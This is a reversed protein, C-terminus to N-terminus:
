YRWTARAPLTGAWSCCGCGRGAASFSRTWRRPPACRMPRPGPAAHARRRRPRPVAPGRACTPGHLPWTWCRYRGSRLTRGNTPPHTHAATWQSRPLSDTPRRRCHSGRCRLHVELTPGAVAAYSGSRSLVFHAVTMQLEPDPQVVRVPPLAAADQLSRGHNACLHNADVLGQKAMAGASPAALMSVQWATVQLGSNELLAQRVDAFKIKGDDTAVYSRGLPVFLDRM